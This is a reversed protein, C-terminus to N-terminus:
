AADELERIRDHTGRGESLDRRAALLEPPRLLSGVTEARAVAPRAPIPPPPGGGSRGGADGGPPGRPPPAPPPARGPRGAREGRRNVAPDRITGMPDHGSRVVEIQEFMKKRMMLVGRDSEGPHERTRDAVRGQGAWAIFDQNMIHSDLWRGTQRDAVPATWCP